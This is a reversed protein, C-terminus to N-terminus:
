GEGEGSIVPAKVLSKLTAENTHCTNCSSNAPKKKLSGAQAIATWDKHCENCNYWSFAKKGDHCGFCYKAQSHSELDINNKGKAISFLQTHCDGCDAKAIHKDHNFSVLMENQGFSISTNYATKQSPRPKGKVYGVELGDARIHCRACQTDSAFADKGNHCAGCYKGKYLSDMIFDNKEQAQLAQMDFLGSHCKECSINKVDVHYQHRFIVSKVPETYLIGGGDSFNKEAAPSIDTICLSLFLFIIVYSKKM